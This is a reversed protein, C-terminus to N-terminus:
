GVLTQLALNIKAAFIGSNTREPDVRDMLLSHADSVQQATASGQLGLIQYAEQETMASSRPTKGRRSSVNFDSNERWTPLKRDLYAEILLLSEKDSKVEVMCQKTQALSLSSLTKGEFDGTLLRGEIGDQIRSSKEISIEIAASRIIGPRDKTKKAVMRNRQWLALGLAILPLGVIGRGALTLVAGLAISGIPLINRYIGALRAAPTYAFVLIPIAILAALLFLYFLGHM